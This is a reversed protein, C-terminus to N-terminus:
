KYTYRDAKTKLSTAGNVTVTIDVTGAAHAPVFTECLTHPGCSVHEGTETTGGFSFVDSAPFGEAFGYGDIVQIGFESVGATSGTNPFVRTIVPLYKYHDKSTIASTGDITTITVDVTGAEERAPSVAIVETGTPAVIDKASVGALVLIV